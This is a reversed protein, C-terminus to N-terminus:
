QLFNWAERQTAGPQLFLCRRAPQEPLSGRQAHRPHRRLYQRSPATRGFQSLAFVRVKRSVLWHRVARAMRRAM